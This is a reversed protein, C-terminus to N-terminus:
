SFCGVKNGNEYMDSANEGRGSGGEDKVWGFGNIYIMGDKTDGHKPTSSVTPKNPQVQEPIYAPETDTTTLPGEDEIKPPDTPINQETDPQEIDGNEIIIGIDIEPQSTLEDNSDINNVPKPKESQTKDPAPIDM